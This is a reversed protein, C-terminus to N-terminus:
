PSSRVSKATRPNTHARKYAPFEAHLKDTLWPWHRPVLFQHHSTQLLPIQLRPPMEPGAECPTPPASMDVVSPAGPPFVSPRSCLERAKSESPSKMICKGEIGNLIGHSDQM